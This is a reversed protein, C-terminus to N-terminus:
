HTEDFIALHRGDAFRCERSIGDLSAFDCDVRHTRAAAADRIGLGRVRQADTRAAGAGFGARGAVTAAASFGRDGVRIYHETPQALADEAADDAGIELASGLGNCLEGSP